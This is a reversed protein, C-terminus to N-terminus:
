VAFPGELSTDIMSTAVFCTVFFIGTPRPGHPIATTSDFYDKTSPAQHKTRGQDKTRPGDKTRQDKTRDCNANVTRDCVRM